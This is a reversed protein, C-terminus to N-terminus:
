RSLTVVFVVLALVPFRVRTKQNRFLPTVMSVMKAFSDVPQSRVLERRYGSTCGVVGCM